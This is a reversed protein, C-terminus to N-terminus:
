IQIPKLHSDQDSFHFSPDWLDWVWKVERRRWVFVESSTPWSVGTTGERQKRKQLEQTIEHPAVDCRQLVLYCGCCEGSRKYRCKWHHTAQLIPERTCWYSPSLIRLKNTGPSRTGICARDIRQLLTHHRRPRPCRLWSSQLTGGM